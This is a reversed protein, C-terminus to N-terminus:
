FRHLLQTRAFRVVLRRACSTLLFGTTSVCCFDFDVVTVPCREAGPTMTTDSPERWMEEDKAPKETPEEKEDEHVEPVAPPPAELGLLHSFRVSVCYAVETFFRNVVFDDVSLRVFM